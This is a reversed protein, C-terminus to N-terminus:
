QGLQKILQQLHPHQLEWIYGHIQRNRKQTRGTKAEYIKCETKKNM